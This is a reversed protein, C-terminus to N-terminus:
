QRFFHVYATGVLGSTDASGTFTLAQTTGMAQCSKGLTGGSNINDTCVTATGVDLTDILNASSTTANAAVGVSLNAAGTSKVTTCIVVRSIIIAAPYTWSAIAGGTTAVVGALAIAKIEGGAFWTPASGSGQSMLIQGASGDGFVEHLLDLLDASNAQTYNPDGPPVIHVRTRAM